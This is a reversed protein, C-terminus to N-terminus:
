HHNRHQNAGFHWRIQDSFDCLLLKHTLPFVKAVVLRIGKMQQYKREDTSVMTPVTTDLTPEGQTPFSTPEQPLPDTPPMTPM